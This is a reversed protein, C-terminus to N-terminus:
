RRHRARHRRRPRPRQCRRHRRTRSISPSAAVSRVSAASYRDRHRGHERKHRSQRRGLQPRGLQHQIRSYRQQHHPQEGVSDVLEAMDINTAATDNNVTLSGGVSSLGVLNSAPPPSTNSAITFNGGVDTLDPMDITLLSHNNTISVDGGAHVLASLNLTVVGNNSIVIAGAQILAGLDITIVSTNGGLDVSGTVTTVSGLDISGATANDNVNISGGVSTVSGLDISGVTANDNVNISGGVTTVSGLSITTAADNNSLDVSGGVSTVSGLDISGVTANDNVNVSGGVTTVSGLSITTAADNNSLDVSGGVSTVSGLDISGVTANDNVNVSGGVTTVSGLSITTAADNNSLDVSGAVSTLSPLTITLLAGNNSIVFNGGVSALNHLDLTVLNQNDSITVDGGVTIIASLDINIDSASVISVHDVNQDSVFQFIALNEDYLIAGQSSWTIAYSGNPQAAATALFDDVGPSNSVNYPAVLQQGQAGYVATFIDYSGDAIQGEWTLAYAGNSLATIEDAFGNSVNVPGSIQQGQADYVATFIGGNNWLLAYNGNALAAIGPNAGGAVVVPAAIQDGQADYVATYILQQFVGQTTWSLAYGGNALAAVQADGDDVGSSNTVDTPAAVQQGQNNYIVTYIDHGADATGSSWTVVYNGNSLAAVPTARFAIFDEIGPSNSVNVAGVQQGTNDFVAMAVDSNDSAVQLGWTVVYGGTPLATVDPLSSEGIGGSAAHPTSVQNGQADYVATFIVNTGIGNVVIEQEWALAYGGGSLGAINPYGEPLVTPPMAAGGAIGQGQASFVQSIVSNPSSFDSYTVAFSGDSLATINPVDFVLGSNDIKKPALITNFAM